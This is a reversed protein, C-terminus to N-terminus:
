HEKSAITGTIEQYTKRDWWDKLSLHTMTGLLLHLEIPIRIEPFDLIVWKNIGSKSCIVVELNGIRCDVKWRQSDHEFTSCLIEFTEKKLM